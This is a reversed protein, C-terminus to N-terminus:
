ARLEKTIKYVCAEDELTSVDGLNQEQVISKLVRRLIKGSRTKPLGDVFYIGKPRVFAGISKRLNLIIKAKIEGSPLIDQKLVTFIIFGEGKIDDRTATVASEAVFTNSAVAHEIEATGIRHGAINLTEDARGLLWFYGDESKIAYDGSYYIGAFKSWYIEKYKEDNNHIGMMMGPWPKKVVLFGKEGSKVPTGDSACVEAEIGQL